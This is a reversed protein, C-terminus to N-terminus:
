PYKYSQINTQGVVFTDVGATRLVQVLFYFTKLHNSGASPIPVNSQTWPTVIMTSSNAATPNPNLSYLVRYETFCATNSYPGWAVFGNEVTLRELDAQGLGPAWEVESAALISNGSGLALTRYFYTPGDVVSGDAATTRTRVTSGAAAVVIAGAQPPYANPIPTSSRLTVYRAFGAGSYKSWNLVVGAPCSTLGLSLGPQATATPTPTPSPIPAPRPTVLPTPSPSRSPSVSPSPSDVPSDSPSPSPSPATTPTDNPALAVGALAGIPYGLSEDLKANNILWPDSFVSIPIPGITVGATAPNGFMVTMSSGEAVQQHTERGNVAVSHELALLTVQEGGGAAPTRDLDFATGTATWTYPGTVVAYSGGAPVVVRHYARGALQALQVTSGSLLNLRFDAGGALRAQSSGLLLTAHGDSAVRIEDGAALATGAVLAQSGGTRILTADTAEGVRDAPVAIFRGTAVGAAGVALVIAGIGLVTWTRLSTKRRATSGARVGPRPRTLLGPRAKPLAVTTIGLAAIRGATIELSTARLM